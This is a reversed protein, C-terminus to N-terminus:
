GHGLGVAGGQGGGEVAVVAQAPYFANGADHVALKPQGASLEAKAEVWQQATERVTVSRSPPPMQLKLNGIPM